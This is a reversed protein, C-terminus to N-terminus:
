SFPTANIKKIAAVKKSEQGISLEDEHQGKNM